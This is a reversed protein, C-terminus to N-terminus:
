AKYFATATNAETVLVYAKILKVCSQMLKQKQTHSILQM